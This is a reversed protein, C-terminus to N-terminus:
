SYYFGPKVLSLEESTHHSFYSSLHVRDYALRPEACFITIEVSASDLRDCLEEVFRHGVMGNGVVVIRQKQTNGM